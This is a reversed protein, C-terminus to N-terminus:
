TFPTNSVHTRGEAPGIRPRMVYGRRCGLIRTASPSHIGYAIIDNGSLFAADSRREDFPVGATERYCGSGSSVEAQSVKDTASCILSAAPALGNEPYVALGTVMGASAGEVSEGGVDDCSLLIGNELLGDVVLEINYLSLLGNNTITYTYQVEDDTTTATEKTYSPKVKLRVSGVQCTWAFVTLSHVTLYLIPTIIPM